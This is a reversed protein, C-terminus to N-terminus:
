ILIRVWVKQPHPPLSTKQNYYSSSRTEASLFTDAKKNGLHTPACPPLPGPAPRLKYLALAVHNGPLPFNHGQVSAPLQLARRLQPLTPTGKMARTVQPLPMSLDKCHIAAPHMTPPCPAASPIRPLPALQALTGVEKKDVASSCTSIRPPKRAARVCSGTMTM